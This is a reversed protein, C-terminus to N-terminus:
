KGLPVWTACFDPMGPELDGNSDYAPLMCAVSVYTSGSLFLSGSTLVGVRKPSFPFADSMCACLGKRPKDISSLLKDVRQALRDRDTKDAGAAPPVSSVALAVVPILALARGLRFGRQRM